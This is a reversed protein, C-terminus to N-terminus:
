CTVLSSFCALFRELLVPILWRVAGPIAIGGVTNTRGPSIPETRNDAEATPQSMAGPLSVASPGALTAAGAAMSWSGSASTAMAGCGTVVLSPVPNLHTTM